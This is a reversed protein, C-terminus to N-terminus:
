AEAFMPPGLDTLAVVQVMVRPDTPDDHRRAEIAIIQKDDAYCIGRLSDILVKLSNDLDGRRAPRYVDLVIRVDGRLMPMGAARALIAARDMFAKAESSRHIIGRNHRWYRNASPPYPLKLIM